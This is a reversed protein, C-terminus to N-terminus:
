SSAHSASGTPTPEELRGYEHARIILHLGICLALGGAILVIAGAFLKLALPFASLTQLLATARGSRSALLVGLMLASPPGALLLGKAALPISRSDRLLVTLSALVLLTLAISARALLPNALRFGALNGVAAQYGLVSGLLTAGAVITWAMAPGNAYRGRATLIGMVAALAIIVELGVMTWIPPQNPDWRSVLGAGLAGVIASLLLVVCVAMAAHRIVAPVPPMRYNDM